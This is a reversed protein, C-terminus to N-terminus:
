ALVRAVEGQLQEFRVPKALIADVKIWPRRGPDALDFSLGTEGTVATMLIIKTGPHLKRIHHALVFGGDKEEMMLDILALDPRLGALKEMAEARGAAVTVAFGMQSLAREQQFLFDPDDDVVLAKKQIDMADGLNGRDTDM